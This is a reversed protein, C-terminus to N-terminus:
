KPQFLRINISRARCLQELAPYSKGSSSNSDLSYTDVFCVVSDASYHNIQHIANDVKRVFGSRINLYCTWNCAHFLPIFWNWLFLTVLLSSRCSLAFVLLWIWKILIAAFLPDYNRSIWYSKELSNRTVVYMCSHTTMAIQKKSLSYKAVGNSQQM